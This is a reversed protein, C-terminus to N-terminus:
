REEQIAISIARTSADTGGTVSEEREHSAAERLLSIFQDYRPGFALEHEFYSLANASLRAAEEPHHKLHLIAQALADPDDPPTVLGARADAVRRAADSVDLAACIVPRGAAMYSILKSPMSAHACEKRMTLVCVDSAAHMAPVQSRDQFPEFRINTLGRRAAEAIMQQKLVGEGVCLLLIGPENRLRDAVEVLLDAGSMIGLTGAFLAIFTDQSVGLRSRWENDRPLPRFENEDIWDPIVVVRDRPIGRRSTLVDRMGDSIVIVKKSAMCIHRDWARLFRAVLGGKKILGGNELAEPYLDKVYYLAPVRRLKSFFLCIHTAFFPWVEVLLVDPRREFAATVACSIGFTINELLRNWARRRPGLLWHPCRVVRVGDINEVQRISRRYAPDITGGPRNPFPVVM